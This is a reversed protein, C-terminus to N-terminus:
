VSEGEGAMIEREFMGWEGNHTQVVVGLRSDRGVLQIEVIDSRLAATGGV